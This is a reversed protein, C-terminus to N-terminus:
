GMANSAFQYSGLFVAGGIGIWTTRPGLGAFFVRWGEERYIRGALSFVSERQTALMLRTKLVDLPTTLGAALAGSVSGYFASEVAGAPTGKEGGRRSVSWSKLAEWVPFQIVTFPVERMVTVGWGRYLERSVTMWSGGLKHREALIAAFAARSRGGARGAQARQKVVETPVRVACAAVEAVSAALMHAGAGDGLRRKVDDYTCFFLAAGPASGLAASGIGSYVGRFGGNAFFGGSAQLRTKLTDLPFLSVDVLTGAIGGAILSRLFPSPVLPSPAEISGMTSTVKQIPTVHIVFRHPLERARLM